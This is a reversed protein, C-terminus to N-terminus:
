MQQGLAKVGLCESCTFVYFSAKDHWWLRAGAPREMCIADDDLQGVFFMPKGCCSPVDDGQIWLPVRFRRREDDTAKRLVKLVSQDHERQCLMLEYTDFWDIGDPVAVFEVLVSRDRSALVEFLDDAVEVFPGGLSAPDKPVNAKM